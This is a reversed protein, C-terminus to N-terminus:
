RPSLVCFENGEPDRMVVWTVDDGQGVDAPAAGLGRLRDVEATQDDGVAPAVDLHVRNKGPTPEAVSVLELAPPVDDPHRLTAVLHSSVWIQWGSAEVWFRALRGPDTADVVIAELTGPEDFRKEPALVCFENGEPDAMVVWSVEKQGVDAHTAGRDLLRGVTEQQAGTTPSNLDLHVRNKGRKAEPVPVFVLTLDDTELRGVPAIASEDDADHVLRWGLTEAWWRAQARHDICDFVVSRLRTGM